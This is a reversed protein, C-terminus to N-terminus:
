NKETAYCCIGTSSSSVYESILCYNNPGFALDVIMEYYDVTLLRITTTYYLKIENLYRIGM